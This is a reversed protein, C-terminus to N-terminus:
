HDGPCAIGAALHNGVREDCEDHERGPDVEVRVELSALRRRAIPASRLWVAAGPLLPRTTRAAGEDGFRVEVGAPAAASGRNEVRAEIVVDGDGCTAGLPRWAAIRLDPLPRAEDAGEWPNARVTNHTEWPRPPAVPVEGALGITRDYGHANWTPRTGAWHGLRDRFVRVGGDTYAFPNARGWCGLEEPQDPSRLNSVVVLEAAGDADLDAVVPYEWVTRSPNPHAWRPTGDRGDLITVHCEDAYAVDAAGDGDFDFAAAGVTGPTDDESRVEWRVHPAPLEFDFLVYAHDAAVGVEAEGDGDFDAIVPPGSSVGAGFRVPGLLAEGTVGDRVVLRGGDVAVIQPGMSFPGPVVRAIAVHGDEAIADGSWRLAGDDEFVHRPTVLEMRGDLDVDGIAVSVGHLRVDSWRVGDDGIVAGSAIVEAVGDADLDAIALQHTRRTPSAELPLAVERELAGDRSLVLLAGPPDTFVSCANEPHVHRFRADVHPGHDHFPGRDPPFVPCDGPDGGFPVECRRRPEDGVHVHPVLRRALAAIEPDGDGDLDGVALTAHSCFATFDDGARFLERGDDGSLAVLPADADPNAPAEVILLDPVDGPGVRGDGDDDTLQAVLPVTIAHLRSAWELEPEFPRSAYCGSASRALCVGGVPDCRLGAPCDRDGDCPPGAAACAGDACRMGAGCCVGGCVPGDCRPACGRATCEEAEGCAVDGCRVELCCAANVDRADLPGADASPELRHALYCGTTSLLALLCPALRAM